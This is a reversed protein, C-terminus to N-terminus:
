QDGRLFRDLESKLVKWGKGAKIAKIRGERIYKFYTPKTIRLYFCSEKTTLVQDEISYNNKKTMNVMILFLPIKILEANKIGISTLCTM